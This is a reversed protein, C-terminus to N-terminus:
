WGYWSLNNKSSPYCGISRMFAYRLINWSPKSNICESKLKWSGVVRKNNLQRNHLIGYYPVHNLHRWNFFWCPYPITSIMWLVVHFLRLQKWCLVQFWWSLVFEVQDEKHIHPLPHPYCLRYAAFILCGVCISWCVLPYYCALGGSLKMM